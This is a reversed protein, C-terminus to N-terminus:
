LQCILKTNYPTGCPETGLGIKNLHLYIEESNFFLSYDRLKRTIFTFRRSHLSCKKISVSCMPNIKKVEIFLVCIQVTIM